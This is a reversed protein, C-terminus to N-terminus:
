DLLYLHKKDSGYRHKDIESMEGVPIKYKLSNDRKKMKGYYSPFRIMQNREKRVGKIIEYPKLCSLVCSYKDLQFAVEERKKTDMLDYDTFTMSLEAVSSMDKKVKRPDIYQMTNDYMFLPTLMPNMFYSNLKKDISLDKYMNGISTFLKEDKDYQYKDIFTKNDKTYAINKKDLKDSLFMDISNIVSRFDGEAKEVIQLMSKEIKENKFTFDNKVLIDKIYDFVLKDNLKRIVFINSINKMKKKIDGSEETIIFVLNRFVKVFKENIFKQFKDYVMKNNGKKRDFGDLVYATPIIPMQILAKKYEKHRSTEELNLYTPSMDIEKLLLEVLLSKGCGKRGSIIYIGKYENEELKKKLRKVTTGNGIYEKLTKPKLLERINM